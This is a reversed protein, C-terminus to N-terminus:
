HVIPGQGGAAGKRVFLAPVIALVSALMLIYFCDNYAQILAGVQALNALQAIVTARAQELSQGQALAAQQAQQLAQAVPPADLRVFMALGAYHFETRRVLVFRIIATAYAGFVNRLANTLTAAQTTREAPASGLWATMSATFAVGIGAGRVALILLLTRDSTGLDLRTLEWNAYALLLLGGIILARPGVRNYLRGAIITMPALGLGQSVLLLGTPWAGLNRLNADQLFVPLLFLAGYLTFILVTTVVTNLSFRLSAFLRLDLIPQPTRLEWWIFLPLTVASIALLRLVRPDTWGFYDVKPANTAALLAATTCAAVLGFGVADFSLGRQTPTERLLLAGLLIGVVGIPLNVSFVWSWHVYDTLYGGLTPGLVPGLTITLGYFGMLKGREEPPAVQFLMAQGLPQIMAGGLGQLVRAGELFTLTPAFACLASSVIFGTLSALYVRKTGFRQSFYTTAPIMVGVALLYGTLAFDAADTTVNFSAAIKPLAVNVITTDLVEMFTGISIVILVKWQDSLGRM